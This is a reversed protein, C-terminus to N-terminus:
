KWTYSNRHRIILNLWENYNIETLLHLSKGIEDLWYFTAPSQMELQQIFQQDQESLEGYIVLADSKGLLGHHQQMHQQNQWKYQHLTSM